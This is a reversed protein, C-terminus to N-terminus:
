CPVHGLATPSVFLQKDLFVDNDMMEWLDFAKMYWEEAKSFNNMAMCGNGMLGCAIALRDDNSTIIGKQIACQLLDYAQEFSHLGNAYDNLQLQTGGKIWFCDFLILECDESSHM